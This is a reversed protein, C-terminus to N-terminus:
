SNVQQWRLARALLVIAAGLLIGQLMATYAPTQPTAGPLGPLGTREAIKADVTASTAKAAIQTNARVNAEAYNLTTPREAERHAKRTRRELDVEVNEHKKRIGRLVFFAAGLLSTMSLLAAIFLIRTSIM